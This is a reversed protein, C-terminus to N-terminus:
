SNAYIVQKIIFEQPIDAFWKYVKTNETSEKIEVQFINFGDKSKLKKIPPFKDNSAEKWYEPSYPNAPNQKLFWREDSGKNSIVGNSWIQKQGNTVEISLCVHPEGYMENCKTFSQNIVLYLNEELKEKYIEKYVSGTVRGHVNNTSM